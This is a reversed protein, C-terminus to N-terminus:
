KTSIDEPSKKSFQDMKRMKELPLHYYYYVTSRHALCQELSKAYM